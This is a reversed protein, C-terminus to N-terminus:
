VLSDPTGKSIETTARRRSQGLLSKTGPGAEALPREGASHAACRQPRGSAAGYRAAQRAPPGRHYPHENGRCTGPHGRSERVRGRGKRRCALWHEPLEPLPPRRYAGGLNALAPRTSGVGWFAQFCEEQNAQGFPGGQDPAPSSRHTLLS